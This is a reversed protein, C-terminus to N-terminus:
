MRGIQAQWFIRGDGERATVVTLPKRPIHVTETPGLEYKHFRLLM